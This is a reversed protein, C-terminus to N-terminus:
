TIINFHKSVKEFGESFVNLMFDDGDDRGEMLKSLENSSFWHYESVLDKELVPPTSENKIRVLFEFERVKRSFAGYQKYWEFTGVLDIISDLEWGTEEKLERQLADTIWEGRELHGGAIDWCNPFLKRSPSRRQGFIKGDSRVILAGVLIDVGELSAEKQLTEIKEISIM